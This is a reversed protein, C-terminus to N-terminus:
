IKYIQQWGSETKHWGAKAQKWTGDAHKVWVANAQRWTDTSDKAYSSITPAQLNQYAVNASGGLLSRFNTYDLVSSSYLNKTSNNKIWDKVEAPTATPNRQLYLACIGAIQPSAMSTGGRNAQKYNADLFYPSGYISFASMISTGAAYIDVRPGPCSGKSKQDTQSDKVESDINGVCIATENQISNGRHYYIERNNNVLSSTIYNDYDGSGGANDPKDIKYSCNGAAYVLVIGADTLEDLAVSNAESFFPISYNGGFSSIHESVSADLLLGKNTLDSIKNTIDYKYTNGRYSGGTISKVFIEMANNTNSGLTRLNWFAGWSMNVVTPRSGNKSNHWLKIAAFLNLTSAAGLGTAAISYIRSNKAWGYNKGAAIGAVHTGHGNDDRYSNRMSSLAPVYTAWNIQQVRSVGNADNFEPHDATVGSDTIVIDIGSGDLGYNYTLPTTKNVGYVNYANSHRILGWNISPDANGNVPKNFNGTITSSTLDTEEFPGIEVGPINEIPIEVGMIRDDQKLQEAEEDTLAYICLRTFASLDNLISVPRDPIHPLGNTPNEIDLWVQNYDIGKKLIVIYEKTQM